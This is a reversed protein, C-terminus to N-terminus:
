HHSTAMVVGMADALVMNQPDDAAFAKPAWMAPWLYNGKMRLLLEFVHVYMTSNVGGFATKAWTSFCPDEDNIFFGRCKVKPQDRRAGGAIFVNERQAVPVDAFWYWAGPLGAASGSLIPRSTTPPTASPPILELTWWSRRRSAM